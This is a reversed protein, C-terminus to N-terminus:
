QFWYIEYETTYSAGFSYSFTKPMEAALRPILNPNVHFGFPLLVELRSRERCETSIQSM